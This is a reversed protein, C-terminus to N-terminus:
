TDEKTWYTRMSRYGSGITTNREIIHEPIDASLEHAVSSWNVKERGKVNSWIAKGVPSEFGRNDGIKAKLQNKYLGAMDAWEKELEKAEKLRGMLWEVDEDAETLEPKLAKPHLRYLMDACSDSEDIPPATESEVYDTWFRNVIEAISEFMERNWDVRYIGLEDGLDVAFDVWKRDTVAMQVMAQPIYYVPIDDSGSEGWDFLTQKGPAKCEVLGRGPNVLGDPTGFIRAHNKHVLTRQHRGTYRVANGTVERYWEILMSEKINGRLIAGKNELEDCKDPHVKRMWIDHPTAWRSLGCVAAVESAGIGTARLAQQEPSLM